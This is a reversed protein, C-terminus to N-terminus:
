LEYKILLCLLKHSAYYTNLKVILIFFFFFAERCKVLDYMHLIQFIYFILACMLYDCLSRAQFVLCLINLKFYTSITFEYSQPSILLMLGLLFPCTLYGLFLSSFNKCCSYFLFPQFQFQSLFVQAYYLLFSGLTLSAVGTLMALAPPKVAKQCKVTLKINFQWYFARVGFCTLFYNTHLDFGHCDLVGDWFKSM